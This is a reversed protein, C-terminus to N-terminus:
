VRDNYEQEMLAKELRHVEDRNPDRWAYILRGGHTSVLKRTQATLIATLDESVSSQIFQSDQREQFIEHNTMFFGWGEKHITYPRVPTRPVM